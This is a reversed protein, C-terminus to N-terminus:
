SPTIRPVQLTALDIRGMSDLQFHLIAEGLAFWFWRPIPRKHEPDIYGGGIKMPEGMKRLLETESDGLAVGHPLKGSYEAFGDQDERHLHFSSLWLEKPDIVKESPLVWPAEKFVVDVGEPKFELTGYFEDRDINFIDRGFFSRVIPDNESRGLLSVLQEFGFRTHM